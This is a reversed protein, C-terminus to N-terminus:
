LNLGLHDAPADEFSQVNGLYRLTTKPDGHGLSSQIQILDSKGRYALKAFSRRLDHPTVKIGCQRAYYRVIIFVAQGTIPKRPKRGWVRDLPYFIPGSYIKGTLCWADVASHVWEAIPITRLRSGKGLLDIICWRGERQQFHELTLNACEDRRLGAGLMVCLIARDRIGIPSNIDPANILREAQEISLWNGCKNGANRLGKIRIIGNAVEASMLGADISEMALKHLVIIRMNITSISLNGRSLALRYRLVLDKCFTPRGESVWWNLFHTISQKYGRRTNDNTLGKIVLDIIPQFDDIITLADLM